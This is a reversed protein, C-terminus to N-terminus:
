QLPVGTLVGPAVEESPNQVSNPDIARRLLRQFTSFGVDLNAASERGGPILLQMTEPPEDPTLPTLNRLQDLSQATFFVRVIHGRTRWNQRLEFVLAGGPPCFDPQYGPLQWHMRLMGALGLVFVDSSIVTIVRSKSSGFAGPISDGIVVQEMSRLVHSAANSSQMQNIYPTVFAISYNLTTLRTQQSIADVSLKGWAVDELPMGNTYEMIFPDLANVTNTLGGMNVINGTSVNTTVPTLPISQTTPDALGPPADPPPQTGNQYGFLVSRTLALEASYASQIATGTNYIGQVEQAARAPDPTAVKAEITEFVPDATLLPYSHVPVTAGPILGYGFKAATVNSRQICNARFHSRALDVDSNGTLLGEHLLYDHFYTGLLVEAAQGHPTLYGAPVGFDPYKKVSFAALQVPTATPARVSHRGFIIIQKLTTDDDSDTIKQASIPVISIITLLIGPLIM